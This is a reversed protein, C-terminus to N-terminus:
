AIAPQPQRAFRPLPGIAVGTREAIRDLAARCHAQHKRNNIVLNLQIPLRRPLPYWRNFDLLCDDMVKLPLAKLVLLVNLMTLVIATMGVQDKHHVGLVNAQLQYFPVHALQGRYFLHTLFYGSFSGLFFVLSTVNISLVRGGDSLYPEHPLSLDKPLYGTCNVFWSGPAIPAAQGSRYRMVPGDAGDVVDQLYDEVFGSLGQRITAMEQSSLVGVQFQRPRQNLAVGYKRLLHDMAEQTNDGNFRRATDLFCEFTPSGGFWRPLGLPFLIDRNGFLVGPGIVMRIDRGPHRQILYHATDMATKGGGVVVIPAQSQAIAEGSLEADHPSLSRVQTSSLPLPRAPPIDLSIAKILRKARIKVTAADGVRQCQIDVGEKGPVSYEQHSRYSHGFLTVLEVRRSLQELCHRFQEQVETKDALYAEPMERAWPINGVTFLRHPQHLRVYDYTDCWMGGPAQRTEVLVVRDTPKLYCSASHLANLGAVGAGVVCLECDIVGGSHDKTDLKNM